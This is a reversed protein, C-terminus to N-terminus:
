KIGLIEVIKDKTVVGVVRNAENGAEIVVLTPISYIGYKDSLNPAKNVDISVVKVEPHENAFDNIIPKLMRCPGCWTAYFDILVKKDSKLVENEFSTENVEIIKSQESSIDNVVNENKFNQKTMDNQYKLFIAVGVIVIIFVILYVISLIKKNM